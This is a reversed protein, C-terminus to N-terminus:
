KKQLESKINSLKVWVNYFTEFEEGKFTATRLKSLIFDIETITIQEGDNNKNVVTRNALGM